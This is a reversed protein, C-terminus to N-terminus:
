SSPQVTSICALGSPRSPLNPLSPPLGRSPPPLYKVFNNVFLLQACTMLQSILILQVLHVNSAFGKMELCSDQLVSGFANRDQVFGQGLLGTRAIIRDQRHSLTVLWFGRGPDLTPRTRQGAGADPYSRRDSNRDLFHQKTYFVPGGKEPCLWRLFLFSRSANGSIRLGLELEPCNASLHGTKGCACSFCWLWSSRSPCWPWSSCSFTIKVMSCGHSCNQFFVDQMCIGARTKHM